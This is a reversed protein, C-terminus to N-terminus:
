DCTGRELKMELERETLAFFLNQLDHVFQIRNINVRHEDEYSMEPVQAYVPYWYGHAAILEFYHTQLNIGYECDNAKIFGFRILPDETLPIGSPLMNYYGEQTGQKKVVVNYEDGSDWDTYEKTEIRVVQYLCPDERDSGLVWNGLRLSKVDM